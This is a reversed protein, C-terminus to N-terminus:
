KFFRYGSQNLKFNELDWLSMQDFIKKQAATAALKSDPAEWAIIEINAPLKTTLDDILTLQTEDDEELLPYAFGIIHVPIKTMSNPIFSDFYSSNFVVNHGELIALQFDIDYKRAWSVQTPYSNFCIASLGQLQSRGLTGWYFYSRIHEYNFCTSLFKPAQRLKIRDFLSWFSEIENSRKLEDKILSFYFDLDSGFYIKDFKGFSLKEIFDKEILKSYKANMFPLNNSQTSPQVLHKVNTVEPKFFHMKYSFNNINLDYVLNVKVDKANLGEIFKKWRENLSNSSTEFTCYTKKFDCNFEISSDIRVFIEPMKSKLEGILILISEFNKLDKSSIVLSKLKLNSKPTQSAWFPPFYVSFFIIIISLLLSLRYRNTHIYNKLKAIIQPQCVGM